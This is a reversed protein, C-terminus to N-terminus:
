IIVKIKDNVEAADELVRLIISAYKGLQYELKEFNEVVIEAESSVDTLCDYMADLNRGYFTPFGLEKSMLDHVDSMSTIKEGDIVVRKM